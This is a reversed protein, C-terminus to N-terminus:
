PREQGGPRHLSPSALYSLPGQPPSACRSRGRQAEEALDGALPVLIQGAVTTLGLLTVAGLLIGFSPALACALLAVAACAMMVPILRRRSVVDGLPVILLIGAAYGVQTATVLWGASTASAHLDRAIFELLPQAWYLNAVAAGGAVAFLLTLERTMVRPQGIPPTV